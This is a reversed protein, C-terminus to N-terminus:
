LYLVLLIALTLGVVLGFNTTISSRSLRAAKKKWLSLYM